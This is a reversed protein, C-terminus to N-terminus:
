QGIRIPEIASGCHKCKKADPLVWEACSQCKRHTLSSPPKEKSLDQASLLLILAFVPSIIWSLVCWTGSGRGRQGALLGVAISLFFWGLFWTMFGGTPWDGWMM